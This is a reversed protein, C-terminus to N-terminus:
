RHAGQSLRTRLIKLARRNAMLAAAESIGLARGVDRFTLDAGYRLGVVARHRRPLSRVAELVDAASAEDFGVIHEDARWRDVLNLFALHERRAIRGADRGANVVIRWLWAEVDGKAPDYTKL